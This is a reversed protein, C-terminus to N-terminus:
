DRLESMFDNLMARSGTERYDGSQPHDPFQDIRNAPVTFAKEQQHTGGAVVRFLGQAQSFRLHRVTLRTLM